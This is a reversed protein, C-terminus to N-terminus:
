NLINVARSIVLAVAVISVASQLLMLMKSWRSLPMVDTPSFALANTFSVYLYDPFAPEWDPPAVDPTAMQPFLFDPNPRRGMARAAPGGRDLEWYWLAFTIVNTGWIAAGSALLASGSTGASGGVLHRVLLVVSITNAAGILLLLTLAAGRIITSERNIRMPNSIVLGLLMVAELIPLLLHPRLAFRNPLVVQLAIAAVMALVTWVRQEGQTERLWAPVHFQRECQECVNHELRMVQARLTEASEPHRGAEETM